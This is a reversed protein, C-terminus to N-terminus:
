KAMSEHLFCVENKAARKEVRALREQLLPLHAPHQSLLEKQLAIYLMHEEDTETKLDQLCQVFCMKRKDVLLPLPKPYQGLLEKQLTM